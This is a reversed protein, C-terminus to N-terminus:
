TSEDDDKKKKTTGSEFITRVGIEDVRDAGLAMGMLLRTAETKCTPCLQLFFTDSPDGRKNGEARLEFWGEPLLEKRLREPVRSHEPYPEPEDTVGCGDCRYMVVAIKTM